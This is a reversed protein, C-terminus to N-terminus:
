AYLYQKQSFLNIKEQAESSTGWQNYISEVLKKYNEYPFNSGPCAKNSIDRHPIINNTFDIPIEYLHCWLAVVKCTSLVQEDTPRIIGMSGNVNSFSVKPDTEFNGNLAIGLSRLNKGKAHNGYRDWRCFPHISGDKLIVCNYGTIWNKNKIVRVVDAFTTASHMATHHCVILDIKKNKSRLHRHELKDRDVGGSYSVDMEITSVAPRIIAPAGIVLGESEKEEEADVGTETSIKLDTIKRDTLFKILTHIPQSGGGILVGTLVWDMKAAINVELIYDFIGFKSFYCILVGTVTGIIQLWFERATKEPKRPIIPDILVTAQSYKEDYEAWDRNLKGDKIWTKLQAQKQKLNSKQIKTLKNNDGLKDLIGQFKIILDLAEEEIKAIQNEIQTKEADSATKLKNNLEEIDQVKDDLVSNIKDYGVEAIVEEISDAKNDKFPSDDRVLMKAILGKVFELVREITLSLGLAVSLILMITKFDPLPKTSVTRIDEFAITITESDTKFLVESKSSDIKVIQGTFTTDKTTLVQTQFSKAITITELVSTSEQAHIKGQSLALFSLSLSLLFLFLSLKKEM